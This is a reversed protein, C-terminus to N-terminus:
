IKKPTIMSQDKKIFQRNYDNEEMLSEKVGVTNDSNRGGGGVSSKVPKNEFKNTDRASAQKENFLAALESESLELADSDSEQDDEDQDQDGIEELLSALSSKSAANNSAKAMHRALMQDYDFDFRDAHTRQLRAQLESQRHFEKLQEYEDESLESQHAKDVRSARTKLKHKGFLGFESTKLENNSNTLVPANPVIPNNRSAAAASAAQAAAEEEDDEDDSVLVEKGIYEKKVFKENQKSNHQRLKNNGTELPSYTEEKVTVADVVVLMVCVMCALSSMIRPNIFMKVAERKTRM